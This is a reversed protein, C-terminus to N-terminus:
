ASRFKPTSSPGSLQLRVGPQLPLLPQATTCVTCPRGWWAASAPQRLLLCCGSTSPASSPPQAGGRCSLGPAAQTCALLGTHVPWGQHWPLSHYVSLAQSSGSRPSYNHSASVLSLSCPYRQPQAVHLALCPLRLRCAQVAFQHPLSECAYSDACQHGAHRPCPAVKYGACGAWALCCTCPRVQVATRAKIASQQKHLTWAVWQNMAKRLTCSSFM